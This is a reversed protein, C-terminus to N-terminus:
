VAHLKKAQELSIILRNPLRDSVPKTQKTSLAAALFLLYLAQNTLM